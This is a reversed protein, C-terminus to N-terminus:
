KFNFPKLLTPMAPAQYHNEFRLLYEMVAHIEIQSLAKNYVSAHIFANHENDQTYGDTLSFGSCSLNSSLVQKNITYACEVKPAGEWENVEQDVFINTFGKSASSSVAIRLSTSWQQTAVVLPRLKKTVKNYLGLKVGKFTDTALSYTGDLDIISGKSCSGIYILSYEGTATIPLSFGIGLGGFDTGTISVTPNPSGGQAMSCDMAVGANQGGNYFSHILKEAVNYTQLKSRWICGGINSIVDGAIKRWQTYTGLNSNVFNDSSGAGRMKKIAKSALPENHVASWYYDIDPISGKMTAKWQNYIAVAWSRYFYVKNLVSLSNVQTETIDNLTIISADGNSTKDKSMNADFINTFEKFSRHM